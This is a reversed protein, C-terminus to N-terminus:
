LNGYKSKGPTAPSSSPQRIAKDAYKCQIWYESSPHDSNIDPLHYKFCQHTTQLHRWTNLAGWFEGRNTADSKFWEQPRWPNRVKNRNMLIIVCKCWINHSYYLLAECDALLMCSPGNRTHQTIEASEDSNGRAFELIDIWPWKQDM